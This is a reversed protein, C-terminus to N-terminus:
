RVPLNKKTYIDILDKPDILEFILTKGDTLPKELRIRAGSADFSQTSRGRTGITELKYTGEDAESATRDSRKRIGFGSNVRQDLTYWDAEFSKIGSAKLLRGLVYIEAQDLFPAPYPPIELQQDQGESDMIMVMARPQPPTRVGTESMPSGVESETRNGGIELIRRPTRIISWRAQERDLSIWHNALSDITIKRSKFFQIIEGKLTVMLGETSSADEGSKTGEIASMPALNTSMQQWGIEEVVGEPDVSYIRYFENIEQEAIARLIEPTFRELIIAGQEIRSMESEVRGSAPEIRLSDLLGRVTSQGGEEFSKAVAFLTGYLFANPETQIVLLGSIGQEDQLPVNLYVLEAPYRQDETGGLLRIGLTERSRVTPSNEGTGLNKLFSDVKSTATDGLEPAQLKQFTITWGPPDNEDIVLLADLGQDNRHELAKAGAPTRYALGLKKALKLGELPSNGPEQGAIVPRVGTEAPDLDAQDALITPGMSASLLAWLHIWTRPRPATRTNSSITQM